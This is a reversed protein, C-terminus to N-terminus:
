DGDSREEDRALEFVKKQIGALVTGLKVKIRGYAGVDAGKCIQGVGCFDLSSEFTEGSIHLTASEGRDLGSVSRLSPLNPVIREDSRSRVIQVSPSTVGGFGSM